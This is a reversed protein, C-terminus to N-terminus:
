PTNLETIEKETKPILEGIKRLNHVTEEFDLMNNKDTKRYELSLKAVGMYKGYRRFESIEIQLLNANKFLIEKYFERIETRENENYAYLRFVLQHQEIQIYYDFEKENIKSNKWQWWFGLFGGSANPVYGWDGGINKQLESYFGKWSLWHWENIPTVKYSNIKDDLSQLIKYYNTITDHQKENDTNEFYEHLIELMDTRTFVSFGADIIESYNGQAEMEFYVLKVNLKSNKFHNEAIETYTHLLTTDGTPVKKYEIVIFYAENIFAWVDIQNWQGGAEVSRIPYNSPEGLLRQVFLKACSHLTSDLKKYDEASWQIFWTLFADQSLETTTYNFVNPLKKM